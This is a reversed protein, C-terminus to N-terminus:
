FTCLVSHGFFALCAHSQQERNRCPSAALRTRADRRRRSESGLCALSGVPYAVGFPIGVAEFWPIWVRLMVGAFTLAFNRTMWGRHAEIRGARIARYALLGTALWLVALSGFALHTSLGGYSFAAERAAYEGLM